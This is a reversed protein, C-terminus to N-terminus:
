RVDSFNVSIGSFASWLKVLAYTDRQCYFELQTKLAAKREENVSPAVAEVYASMAMSGDSVGGLEKYDLEPFLSPLVAKVSWSGRQTPHYYHAKAVPLLDVLRDILNNLSAAEIPFRTALNSICTREFGSYVYIPGTEGCAAILADILRESPDSGSLDLFGRHHLDFPTSLCHVSFQFPIAQYPKVRPWRPVALAITEFDLFYAPLAYRSLSKQAEVRDFFADGTITADRVRRQPPSLLREPVKRMDLTNLDRAQHTLEAKLKGPLWSVPYETKKTASSCHDYFGCEFPVKCHTGISKRPPSQVNLIKGAESIWREVDDFKERVATTVDSVLFLEKFCEDGQYVWDKDIHAIAVSDVRVGSKEAIYAQVAADDLHYPKISTSSKVEIIQWSLVGNNATPLLVDAFVLTGAESFGGEFIPQCISLLERTKNVVSDFGETTPDFVKGLGEPDFIERAKKGVEHGNEFRTTSADSHRKLEPEYVELWLRKECQRYALLRSKSLKRM